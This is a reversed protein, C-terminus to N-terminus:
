DNLKIFFFGFRLLDLSSWNTDYSILLKNFQEYHAHKIQNSVLKQNLLLSISENHSVLNFDVSHDMSTAARSSSEDNKITNVLNGIIVTPIGSLKNFKIM